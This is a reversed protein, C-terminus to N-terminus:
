TCECHVAEVPPNPSRQRDRAPLPHQTIAPWRGNLPPPSATLKHKFDQAGAAVPPLYQSTAPSTLLTVWDRSM